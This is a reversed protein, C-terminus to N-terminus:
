LAGTGPGPSARVLSCLEEVRAYDLELRTNTFCDEVILVLVRVPLRMVATRQVYYLDAGDTIYAGPQFRPDTSPRPEIASSLNAPM